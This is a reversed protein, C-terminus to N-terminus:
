ELMAKRELPPNGPKEFEPAIEVDDLQYDTICSDLLFFLSCLSMLRSM